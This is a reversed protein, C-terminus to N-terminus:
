RCQGLDKGSLSAGILVENGRDDKALFCEQGYGDLQQSGVIYYVEALQQAIGRLSAHQAIIADILAGSIKAFINFLTM